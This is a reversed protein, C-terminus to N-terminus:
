LGGTLWIAIGVGACALSILAGRAFPHGAEVLKVLLTKRDVRVGGSVRPEVYKGLQQQEFGPLLANGRHVVIDDLLIFNGRYAIQSGAGLHYVGRHDVLLLTQENVAIHSMAARSILLLTVAPGSLAIIIAALQWASVEQSIGSAIAAGCLLAYGLAIRRLAPKRRHSPSIWRLGPALDDIPPAGRERQTSYVLSRARQLWAILAGGVLLLLFLAMAARRALALLASNDTAAQALAQLGAPDFPTEREGIASFRQLSLTTYSPLLVREGWSAMFASDPVQVEAQGVYNWQSDFRYLGAEASEANKMIVWWSDGARVFDHVVTQQAAIAPPPLLLIEDLQKGFAMDDYRFVSIAPADPSNMLLLGSDLALTPNDPLNIPASALIEGSADAKQLSQSQRDIFLLAGDVPNEVVAELAGSPLPVPLPKCGGGQTDCRLLQQEGNDRAGPQAQSGSALLDGRESYLLTPGLRTVGLESLSLTQTEVGARDHLALWPGALVAPRLQADVAVAQIGIPAADPPQTIPVISTLLLGICAATALLLGKRALTNARQTRNRVTASNRFAQLTYLNPEDPQRRGANVTHAGTSSVIHRQPLELSSKVATKTRKTAVTLAPVPTSEASAQRSTTAARQKNEKAKKATATATAAARQAEDQERQAEAKAQAEKVQLEAQKRAEQEARLRAQEQARKQAEAQARKKEERRAKRKAAARQRKEEKQNDLEAEQRAATDVQQQPTAQTADDLPLTLQVEKARKKTKRRTTKPKTKSASVAPTVVAEAAQQTTVKVLEAVVGVNRLEQYQEAAEKRELNRRLIVPEGSFFRELRAPDDISFMEAFRLKVQDSSEGPLIEGSFTLNFKNM